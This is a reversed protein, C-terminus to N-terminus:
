RMGYWAGLVGSAPLDTLLYWPEKASAGWFVVLTCRLGYRFAFGEVAVQRGQAPCFDTLPQAQRQWRARFQGQPNVRLLPHWGYRRILAFLWAAWLGRDALGYVPLGRPVGRRVQALLQEWEGRGAGRQTAPLVRWAVPIATQQCVGSIVLVTHHQRLTTAGIALWLATPRLLHLVARRLAHCCAPEHWAHPRLRKLRQHATNPLTATWLALWVSVQSQALTGLTLLAFVLCTLTHQQNPPLHPMWDRVLQRIRYAKHLNPQARQPNPNKM